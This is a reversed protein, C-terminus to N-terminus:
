SYERGTFLESAQRLGPPADGVLSEPISAGEAGIRPCSKRAPLCGSRRNRGAGVEVCIQPGTNRLPVVESRRNEGEGREEALKLRAYRLSFWAAGTRRVVGGSPVRVVM